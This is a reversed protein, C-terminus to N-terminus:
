LNRDELLVRDTSEGVFVLRSVLLVVPDAHPIAPPEMKSGKGVQVGLALVSAAAIM